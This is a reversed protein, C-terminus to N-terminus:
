GPGESPEDFPDLEPGPSTQPLAVPAFTVAEHPPLRHRLMLRIIAFLVLPANCTLLALGFARPGFLELAYAGLIPALAAGVGYGRVM